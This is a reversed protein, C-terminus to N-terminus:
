HFCNGLISCSSAHSACHKRESSFCAIFAAYDNSLEWYKGRHVLILLSLLVCCCLGNLWRVSPTVAARSSCTFGAFSSIEGLLLFKALLLFLSSAVATHCPRVGIVLSSSVCRSIIKIESRQSVWKQGIPIGYAPHSLQAETYDTVLCLDGVHLM